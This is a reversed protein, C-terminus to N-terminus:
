HSCEKSTLTMLSTLNSQTTRALPTKPLAKPLATPLHPPLVLCKPFWLLILHIFTIFFFIYHHPSTYEDQPCCFILVPTHYTTSLSSALSATSTSTSTSTSEYSKRISSNDDMKISKIRPSTKKNGVANITPDIELRHLGGPRGRDQVRTCALPVSCHDVPDRGVSHWGGLWWFEITCLMEFWQPCERHAPMLSCVQQSGARYVELRLCPM